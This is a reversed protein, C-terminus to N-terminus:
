ESRSRREGRPRAPPEAILAEFKTLQTDSLIPRLKEITQQKMQEHKARMQERTPRAQSDGAKERAKDFEAKRQERQEDFVQRVAAKQGEDLDLLIAMRDIDPGGRGGPPPGPPQAMANGAALLAIATITIRTKM